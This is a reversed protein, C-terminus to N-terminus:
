PRYLAIYGGAMVLLPIVFLMPKAVGPSKKIWLPLLAFILWLVLKMWTWGPLGGHSIGLRALMGFGAVIMLLLGVGHLTALVGKLGTAKVDQGAAVLAAMGGVGVLLAALGTLHMLNYTTLSM